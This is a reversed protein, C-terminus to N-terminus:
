ETAGAELASAADATATAAAAVASVKEAQANEALTWEAYCGDAPPTQGAQVFPVTVANDHQGRENFVAMSVTSDSHVAAIIAAFTRQAEGEVPAPHYLAPRGVTPTM